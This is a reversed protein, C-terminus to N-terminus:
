KTKLWIQMPGRDRNGWAYYPVATYAVPITSPADPGSSVPRYLRGEWGLGPLSTTGPFNLTTLGGLLEPHFQASVQAGAPLVGERLDIGTCDAGELCYVLPGRRLAARGANEFVYPHSEVRHVEMPLTLCVRDGTEWIRHIEVYTEPKLPIGTEEGNIQLCAPTSEHFGTWGPIRLFLSFEGEGSLDLRIEGEWPVHTDQRIGVRRGDPM